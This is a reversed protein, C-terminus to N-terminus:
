SGLESGRRDHGAMADRLLCLFRLLLSSLVRGRARGAGPTHGPVPAPAAGRPFPSLRSHRRRPASPHSAPPIHRQNEPPRISLRASLSARAPSPEWSGARWRPRPARFSGCGRSSSSPRPSPPSRAAGAPTRSEQRGETTSSQGGRDAPAGQAQGAGVIAERHALPKTVTGSYASPQASRHRPSHGGLRGAVRAGADVALSKTRLAPQEGTNGKRKNFFVDSRHKRLQPARIRTRPQQKYGM